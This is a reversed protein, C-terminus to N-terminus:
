LGIEELAEVILADTTAIRREFGSRRARMQAIFAEIAEKRTRHITIEGKNLVAKCGFAYPRDVHILKETERLIPIEHVTIGGKGLIDSEQVVYIFGNKKEAM